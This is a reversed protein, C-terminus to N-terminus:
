GGLDPPPRKAQSRWVRVRFTRAVPDIASATYNMLRVTVTNAASVWAYPMIGAELNTTHVTVDDGTAAGTVTMTLDAGTHSAISGFDLVGSGALHRQIGTSGYHGLFSRNFLTAGGLDVLDGGTGDWCNQVHGSVLGASAEQIKVPAGGYGNFTCGEIPLARARVAIISNTKGTPGDLFVCGYIPVNYCNATTGVKVDWGANAEFYCGYFGTAYAGAPLEVGSTTSGEFTHGFFNVGLPNSLNAAVACGQTEGGSFTLANGYVDGAGSDATIKIGTASSMFYCGTFTGIYSGDVLLGEGTSSRVRVNTAAFHAAGTGSGAGKYRLAPGAAGTRRLSLDRLHTETTFGSTGDIILGGGAFDLFTNDGSGHLTMNDDTISLNGTINFTGGNFFASRSGAVADALADRVDTDTRGYAESVNVPRHVVQSFNVPDFTAAAAASAAAADAADEAREANAASVALPITESTALDSLNVTSGDPQGVFLANVVGDGNFWTLDYGVASTDPDGGSAVDTPLEVTYGSSVAPAYAGTRAFEDLTVLDGAVVASKAGGQFRITLRGSAGADVGVVEHPDMVVSFSGAAV